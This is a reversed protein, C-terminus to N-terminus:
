YEDQKLLEKKELLATSFSINYKTSLINNEDIITSTCIELDRLISENESKKNIIELLEKINKEIELGVTTNLKKM